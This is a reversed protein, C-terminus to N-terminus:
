QRKELFKEVDKVRIEGSLLKPLLADRIAALTRSQGDNHHIADSLSKVQKEFAFILHELPTVLKSMYALNRNLGPVASDAGLSALDQLSLAHFLYYRVQAIKYCM